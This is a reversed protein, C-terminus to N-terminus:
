RRRNNRTNAKKESAKAAQEQEDLYRYTRATVDLTLDDNAGRRTTIAADHLTVIRPLAAITSVFEAIQHYSGSVRIKIPQEAYFDHLVIAQPEFLDQQVVGSGSQSIDTLLAPMESSGPLQRLMAGFSREIDALQQKYLDLNVAKAHKEKFETRLKAEESEYRALEDKNSNWVGFWILAVSAVVFFIAIAGVRVPFPWRGPDKPDLQKLEDFTM